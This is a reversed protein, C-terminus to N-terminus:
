KELSDMYLEFAEGFTLAGDYINIVKTWGDFTLDEKFAKKTSYDDCVTYVENTKKDTVLATYTRTKM